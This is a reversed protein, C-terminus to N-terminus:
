INKMYVPKFRMDKDNIDNKVNLVLLHYRGEFILSFYSGCESKTEYIQGGTYFNSLNELKRTNLKTLM